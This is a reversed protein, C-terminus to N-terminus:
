TQFLIVPVFLLDRSMTQFLLNVKTWWTTNLEFIIKFNSRESFLLCEILTLQIIFDALKKPRRQQPQSGWTVCVDCIVRADFRSCWLPWGWHGALAPRWARGSEPALRRKYAGSVPLPRTVWVKPQPLCPMSQGPRGLKGDTATVQASLGARGTRM